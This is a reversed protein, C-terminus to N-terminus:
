FLNLYWKKKGIEVQIVVDYKFVKGSIRFYLISWGYYASKLIRRITVCLKTMRKNRDCVHKNLSRTHTTVNCIHGGHRWTLKNQRLYAHRSTMDASNCWLYPWQSTKDIHETVNKDQRWTWRTWDCIQEEHRWKSKNHWLWARRSTMDPKSWCLYPRRLTM